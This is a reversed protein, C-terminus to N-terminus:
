NLTLPATIALMNQHKQQLVVWSERRLKCSLAFMNQDELENMVMNIIEHQANIFAAKFASDSGLIGLKSTDLNSVHLCKVIPREDLPLLKFWETIQIQAFQKGMQTGLLVLRNNIENNKLSDYVADAIMCSEMKVLFNMYKLNLTFLDKHYYNSKTTTFTKMSTTIITNIQTEFAALSTTTKLQSLIDLSDLKSRTMLKLIFDLSVSYSRLKSVLNTCKVDSYCKTTIRAMFENKIETLSANLLKELNTKITDFTLTDHIKEIFTTKVSAYSSFNPYAAYLCCHGKGNGETWSSQLVMNYGPASWSGGNWVYWVAEDPNCHTPLTCPSVKKSLPIFERTKHVYLSTTLQFETATISYKYDLCGIGLAEALIVHEILKPDLTVYADTNEAFIPLHVRYVNQAPKVVFSKSTKFGSTKILNLAQALNSTKMLSVLDIQTKPHMGVTTAISIINKNIGQVYNNVESNIALSSSWWEDIVDSGYNQKGDSRRILWSGYYKGHIGRSPGVARAYGVSSTSMTVQQNAFYNFDTEQMSTTQNSSSISACYAALDASFLNMLMTFSSNIAAYCANFLNDNAAISKVFEVHSDYATKVTKLKTLALDSICYSKESLTCSKKYTEELDMLENVIQVLIDFDIQDVLKILSEKALFKTVLKLNAQTETLTEPLTPNEALAHNFRKLIKNSLKDRTEMSVFGSLKEFQADVLEATLKPVAKNATGLVLNALNDIGNTINELLRNQILHDTKLDLLYTNQTHLIRELVVFRHLIEKHNAMILEFARTFGEVITMNMQQLYNQLNTIVAMIQKMSNDSKKKFLSSLGCVSSFLSAWGIPNTSDILLKSIALSANALNGIGSSIKQISQNGFLNGFSTAANSWQSISEITQIDFNGKSLGDNIPKLKSDIIESPLVVKSYSDCFKNFKEFETTLFTRTDTTTKTQLTDKKSSNDQKQNDDYLEVLTEFKCIDLASMNRDKYIQHMISPSDSQTKITQVYSRMFEDFNENENKFLNTLTQKLPVIQEHALTGLQKLNEDVFQFPKGIFEAVDFVKQQNQPSIHSSLIGLDQSDGVHYCLGSGLYILKPIPPLNKIILGHGTTRAINQCTEENDASFLELLATGTSSKTIHEPLIDM